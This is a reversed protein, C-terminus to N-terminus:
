DLFNGLDFEARWGTAIEISVATVLAARQSSLWAIEFADTGRFASWFNSTAFDSCTAAAVCLYDSAPVDRYICQLERALENWSAGDCNELYLALSALCDRFLSTRLCSVTM